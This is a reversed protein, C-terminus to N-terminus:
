ANKAKKCNQCMGYFLLSHNDVEFGTDKEVTRDIETLQPSDLDIISGCEGCVFHYHNEIDADYHETGTGVDLRILEGTSLLLNLNRYVTALSINPFDKKVENYVWEASPHANTNKLISMIADRQRSHKLKGTIMINNGKGFSIVIIM